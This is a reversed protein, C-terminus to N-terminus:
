LRTVRDLAAIILASVRDFVGTTFAKALAESAARRESAHPL